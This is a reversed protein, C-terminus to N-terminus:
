DPREKVVELVLAAVADLGAIRPERRDVGQEPEGRQLVGFVGRQDL